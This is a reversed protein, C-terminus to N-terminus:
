VKWKGSELAKSDAIGVAGKNQTDVDSVAIQLDHIFVCLLDEWGALDEKWSGIWTLDHM